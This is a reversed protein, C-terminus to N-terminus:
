VLLIQENQSLLALDLYQQIRRDFFFQVLEGFEQEDGFSFQCLDSEVFECVPVSRGRNLLVMFGLRM